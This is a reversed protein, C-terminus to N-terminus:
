RILRISRISQYIRSASTEGEVQPAKNFISPSAASLRLYSKKNKKRGATKDATAKRDATAKASTSAFTSATNAYSPPNQPELSKFNNTFL